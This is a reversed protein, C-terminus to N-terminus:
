KAKNKNRKRHRHRRKKTKKSNTDSEKQLLKKWSNKILPTIHYDVKKKIVQIVKMQEENPRKVIDPLSEYQRTYFGVKEKDSLIGNKATQVYFERRNDHYEEKPITMACLPRQEYYCRIHIRDKLNVITLTDVKKTVGEEKQWKLYEEVRARLRDYEYIPELAELQRKKEKTEVILYERDFTDADRCGINEIPHILCDNYLSISAELIGKINSKKQIRELEKLSTDDDVKDYLHNFEMEEVFSIYGDNVIYKLHIASGHGYVDLQNDEDFLYIHQSQYTVLLTFVRGTDMAQERIEDKLRLLKESTHSSAIVIDFDGLRDEVSQISESSFEISFGLEEALNKTEKEDVDVDLYLVKIDTKKSPMKVKPEKEIKIPLYEKKTSGIQNIIACEIVKDFFNTYSSEKVFWRRSNAYDNLFCYLEINEQARIGDIEILLCDKIVEVQKLFEPQNVMHSGILVLHYKELEDPYDVYYKAACVISKFYDVQHFGYEVLENYDRISDSILLINVNPILYDKSETLYKQKREEFKEVCFSNFYQLVVKGALSPLIKKRIYNREVIMESHYGSTFSIVGDNSEKIYRKIDGMDKTAVGTIIKIGKQKEFDSILMSIDMNDIKDFKLFAGAIFQELPIELNDEM